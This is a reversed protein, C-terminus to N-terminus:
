IGLLKEKGAAFEADTLLGKTKLEALKAIEDAASTSAHMTSGSGAGSLTIAGDAKLVVQKLGDATPFMSTAAVGADVKLLETLQYDSIEGEALLQELNSLRL